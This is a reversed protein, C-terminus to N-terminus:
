EPPDVAELAEPPIRPVHKVEDDSDDHTALRTGLRM